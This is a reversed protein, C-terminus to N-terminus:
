HRNNEEFIEAIKAMLLAKKIEIQKIALREANDLGGMYYRTLWPIISAAGDLFTYRAATYVALAILGTNLLFSNAAALPNGAYLQGLGPIVASLTRATAIRPKHLAANQFANMVLEKIHDHEAAHILESQAKEFNNTMLHILGSYFYQRRLIYGSSANITYLYQRALDTDGLMISALVRSFTYENKLSDSGASNFALGFFFLSEEFNGAHLQSQAILPYIHGAVSDNGFFLARRYYSTAAAYQGNAFADRGKAITQGVDQAYAPM